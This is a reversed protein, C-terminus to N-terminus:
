LVKVAKEAADRMAPQQNTQQIFVTKQIAIAAENQVNDLAGITSALTM